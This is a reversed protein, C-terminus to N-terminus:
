QNSNNQTSFNDIARSTEELSELAGEMRGYKEKISQEYRELHDNYNEIDTNTRSIQTDITAIKTSFIGGTQTFPKMYTDLNYGLGTDVIMDGDGDSGFLDKVAEFNNSLAADLKEEDIELYGRLRAKDINGAGPRTNTAIGMQALMSLERGDRTSYANMMMTRLSSRLRQLTMDGQFIGLRERAQEQEEESYYQIENIVAEDNVTVTHIDRLLLNYTGILDTIQEKVLNRDPEVSLTVERDSEGHLNLTVGPILDDITNSSRKVEIGELLVVADAAESIPNVPRYDGRVTPDYVKIDTVTVDRQTNQNKIKIGDLTNLYDSLPVRVTQFTDSDQFEQLPIEMGETQLFIVNRDLVKPPPVPPEYEPTETRSPNDTITIDELTTEGPSTLEPGPPPSPPTWEKEPLYELKVKMELIMDENIPFPLDVPIVASGGAPVTLEGDELVAKAGSIDRYDGAAELAVTKTSGSVPEIMGINQGLAASDEMFTMRNEAGTILSEILLVETEATNRIVTAKVTDDGYKNVADSFARLSGGRFTFQVKEEGVQFGYTGEPIEFESSLSKSLFRDSKAKNRVIVSSINEPTNREVSATLVSENSSLAVRESFPNQFGYLNGATERFQAISANLEQWVKKQEKYEDVTNQMRELPIREVEMLDEIIKGTNYRSTVGPITIDSM